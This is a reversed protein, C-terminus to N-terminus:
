EHQIRQCILQFPHIAYVFKLQSFLFLFERMKPSLILQNYSFAYSTNTICLSQILKKNLVFYNHYNHWIAFAFAMFNHYNWKNLISYILFVNSNEIASPNVKDAWAFLAFTA